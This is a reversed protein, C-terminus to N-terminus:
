RSEFKKLEGKRICDELVANDIMEAGDLLCGKCLLVYTTYLNFKLYMTTKAGCKACESPGFDGDETRPESMTTFKIM